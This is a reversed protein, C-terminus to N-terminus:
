IGINIVKKNTFLLSFLYTHGEIELNATYCECLVSTYFALCKSRICAHLTSSKWKAAPHFRFFIDTWLYAGEISEMENQKPFNTLSPFCMQESVLTICHHLCHSFIKPEKGPFADEVCLMLTRPRHPRSGAAWHVAPSIHAARNLTMPILSPAQQALGACDPRVPVRLKGM